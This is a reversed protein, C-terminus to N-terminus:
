PVQNERNVGTCGRIAFHGIFLSCFICYIPLRANYNFHPKCKTVPVFCSGSRAKRTIPNIKFEIKRSRRMSVVLSLEGIQEFCRSLIVRRQVLVNLKFQKKCM